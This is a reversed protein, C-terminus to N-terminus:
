PAMNAATTRRDVPCHELRRTTVPSYVWGGNLKLTVDVERWKPHGREHLVGINSCLSRAFADLREDAARGRDTTTVLFSLVSLTAIDQDLWQAYSGARITAPFYTRYASRSSPQSPDVPLLTIFRRAEPKMDALLRTPQGAILVVVDITRDVTLAVLARQEDLYTAKGAAIPMGFMQRYVAAVTLASGSGVVGLNITRDRIQDVSQLDTDRRVIFYMEQTYLPAVVRLPRVIEDAVRSGKSAQDIFAKLVDYQVIGLDVTADDHLRHMNDTAGKSSVVDLKLGAPAAIYRALDLGAQFDTEREPSTVIVLSPRRDDPSAVGTDAAAVSADPRSASAAGQSPVAIPSGTQARAPLTMWALSAAGAVVAAAVRAVLPATTQLKRLPPSAAQSAESPPPPRVPAAISLPDHAPPRSLLAVVITSALSTTNM